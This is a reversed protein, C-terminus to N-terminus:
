ECARRFNQRVSVLVLLAAVATLALRIAAVGSVPLGGLLWGLAPMWALALALWLNDLRFRPTVAVGALALAAHQLFHMETLVGTLCTFLALWALHFSRRSAPLAARFGFAAAFVPALWLALALWGYRDFPSHAWATVLDASQWACLALVGWQADVTFKPIRAKM